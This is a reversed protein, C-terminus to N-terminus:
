VPKWWIGCSVRLNEEKQLGDKQLAREEEGTDGERLKLTKDLVVEKELFGRCGARPLSPLRPPVTRTDTSTGHLTITPLRQFWGAGTGLRSRESIRQVKM